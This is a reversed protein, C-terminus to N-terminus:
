ADLPGRTVHMREGVVALYRRAGMGTSAGALARRGRTAGCNFFPSRHALRKGAEAHKPAGQAGAGPAIQSVDALPAVVGAFPVRQTGDRSGPAVGVLAGHPPQIEKVLVVQE